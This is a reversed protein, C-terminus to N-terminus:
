LPAFRSSFGISTPPEATWSVQTVLRAILLSGSPKESVTVSSSAAALPNQTATRPLLSTFWPIPKGDLGHIQLNDIRLSRWGSASHAQCVHLCSRISDSPSCALLRRASKPAIHFCAIVDVGECRLHLGLGAWITAGTVSLGDSCTQTTAVTLSTFHKDNTADIFSDRLNAPM